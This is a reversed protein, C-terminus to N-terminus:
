ANDKRPPATAYGTLSVGAAAILGAASAYPGHFPIAATLTTATWHAAAWVTHRASM